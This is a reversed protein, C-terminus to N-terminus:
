VSKEARYRWAVFGAFGASFFLLTSPIPVPKGGPGPDFEYTVIAEALQGVVLIRGTFSSAFTSFTEGIEINGATFAAVDFTGLSSFNALDAPDTFDLNGGFTHGVPFNAPSSCTGSPPSIVVTTCAATGSPSISPGLSGSTGGGLDFNMGIRTNGTAELGCSHGPSCTAEIISTFHQLSYSFELAVSTLTGLLPDFGPLTLTSMVIDTASGSGIIKSAEVRFDDPSVSDTFTITDALAPKSVTTILTAIITTVALSARLTSTKM